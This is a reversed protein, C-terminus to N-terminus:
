ESVARLLLFAPKTDLETFAQPSLFRLEPLPRPEALDRVVFGADRLQDFIASLPRRYFSVDVDHGEVDWTESVLETTLYDPRGFWQWDAAPHHVSFVFAGGPTLCRHLTSLLPAWDEIYHLVLSAVVVDVSQPPPGSWPEALDVVEFRASQGLRKRAFEVMQPQVDVGTLDAGRAVLQESLSGAACGLELVRRGGVDGALKLLAPREYYANAPSNEAHRAYAEALQDYVANRDM